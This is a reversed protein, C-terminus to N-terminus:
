WVKYRQVEAISDHLAYYLIIRRLVAISFMPEGCCFSSQWLSLTDEMLEKQAESNAMYREQLMDSINIETVLM